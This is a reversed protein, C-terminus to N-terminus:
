RHSEDILEFARRMRVLQVWWLLRALFTPHDPNGTLPRSGVPPHCLAKGFDPFARATTGAQGCRVARVPAPVRERLRAHAIIEPKPRLRVQRFQLHEPRTFSLCGCPPRVPSYLRM